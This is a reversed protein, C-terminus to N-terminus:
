RALVKPNAAKLSRRRRRNPGGGSVGRLGKDEAGPNADKGFFPVQKVANWIGEPPKPRQLFAILEGIKIFEDEAVGLGLACRERTGFLNALVPMSSGKVNEFLVAPGGSHILREMIEAIELESSVEATVRKLLGKTELLDIFARLDSFTM